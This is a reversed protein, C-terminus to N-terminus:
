VVNTLKEIVTNDVTALSSSGGGGCGLPIRRFVSADNPGPILLNAVVLLLSV